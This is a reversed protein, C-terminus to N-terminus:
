ESWKQNTALQKVQRCSEVWMFVYVVCKYLVNYIRYICKKKVTRHFRWQKTTSFYTPMLTNSQIIEPANWQISTCSDNMQFNLATELFNREVQSYVDVTKKHQKRCINQTYCTDNLMTSRWRGVMVLLKRNDFHRFLTFQWTFLRKWVSLGYAISRIILFINNNIAIAVTKINYQFFLM